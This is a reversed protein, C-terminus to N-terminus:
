KGTRTARAQQMNLKVGRAIEDIDEEELRDMNIIINQAVTIALSREWVPSNQEAISALYKSWGNCFIALGCLIDMPSMSLDNTIDLTANKAVDCFAHANASVEDDAKHVTYNPQDM